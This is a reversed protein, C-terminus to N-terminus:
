KGNNAPQEFADPIEDLLLKAAAKLHPVIHYLCGMVLTCATEEDYKEAHQLIDSLEALDKRCDTLHFGFEWRRREYEEPGLEERLGEQAGDFVDYLLQEIPTATTPIM